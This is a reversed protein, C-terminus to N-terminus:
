VLFPVRVSFFSILSILSILNISSNLSIRIWLGILCLHHTTACLLIPGAAWTCTTRTSVLMMHLVYCPLTHRQTHQLYRVFSRFSVSVCVRIGYLNYSAPLVVYRIQVRVSPYCHVGFCQVFVTSRSANHESDSELTDEECGGSGAVLRGRQM